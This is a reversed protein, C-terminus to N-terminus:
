EPQVGVRWSRVWVQGPQLSIKSHALLVTGQYTREFGEESLSVTELPFEWLDMPLDFQAKLVLGYGHDRRVWQTQQLHEQPDQKDQSSFALNMECGFWMQCAEGHVNQIRYVVQWGRPETLSITKEVSIMNKQDGTWVAGMRTLRVQPYKDEMVDAQYGTKIFDGQEGYQCRYFDDLKTNPHIFHDLLSTRRYWDVFLRKELGPEKVRVMDHITKVKSSDAADQHAVFDLLQKHYGEQRRTLVNQLNIGEKRLDWEFLSGGNHPSLYLNQDQAEILIEPRGDKDFDEHTIQIRDGQLVRDAQLEASLLERYLAQRLHPLYLGGFVGHWYACNCQGAWLADLLKQGRLNPKASPAGVDGAVKHVKESVRLMKKHVNNSEEYKTLFSRWFGGRVFRKAAEKEEPPIHKQLDTLVEQAPAPLTWEGMESYSATPLYVRGHPVHATLYDSIRSTIIWDKNSELVTLFKELWGEDYVHQYTEPWLGFKEGDDFMVLAKHGSSSTYQRLINLTEGPDKFPIAYRLDQRIPLVRATKGQEESLYAGCMEEMSLGTSLFHTDDLLTYEIDNDALVKTLHPEWVREALWMGRPKVKFRQRIYRSLKQIQGAKDSDPLAPLIPEYYGGTLIELRGQKVQEAVRDIYEPHHHELWEWLIGTGHMNWHIPPHREMAELFPLYSKVYAKEFVFDFNGIPQHNHVGLIFHVKNM